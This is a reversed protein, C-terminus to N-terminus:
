KSSPNSIDSESRASGAVLPNVGYLLEIETVKDYLAELELLREEDTMPKRMFRLIAKEIPGTLKIRGMERLRATREAGGRYLIASVLTGLASLIIVAYKMWEEAGIATAAPRPFPYAAVITIAASLVFVLIQLAWGFVEWTTSRKEYWHRTNMVHGGILAKAEDETLTSKTSGDSM